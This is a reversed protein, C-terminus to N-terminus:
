AVRATLYLGSEQVGRDRTLTRHAETQPQGFSTSLLLAMTHAPTANCSWEVPQYEHGFCVIQCQLVWVHLPGRGSRRRWLSMYELSLLIRRSDRLPHCTYLGNATYLSVSQFHRLCAEVAVPLDLNTTARALWAVGSGLDNAGTCEGTTLSTDMM